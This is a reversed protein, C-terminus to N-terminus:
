ELEIIFLSNFHKRPKHALYLNINYVIYKFCQKQLLRLFVILRILFHIVKSNM